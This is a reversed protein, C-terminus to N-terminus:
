DLKKANQEITPKANIKPFDLLSSLTSSKIKITKLRRIITDEFETCPKITNRPLEPTM